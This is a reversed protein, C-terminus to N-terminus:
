HNGSFDTSITRFSVATRRQQRWPFPGNEETCTAFGVLVGRVQVPVFLPLAQLFGLELARVARVPTEPFAVHFGMHVPPVRDGLLPDFEESETKLM